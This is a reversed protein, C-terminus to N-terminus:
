KTLPPRPVYITDSIVELDTKAKMGICKSASISASKLLSRALNSTPKDGGNTTESNENDVHDPQQSPPSM